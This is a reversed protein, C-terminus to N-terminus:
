RAVNSTKSENRATRLGMIRIVVSIGALFYFFV